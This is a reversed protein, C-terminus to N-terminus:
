AVERHQKRAYGRTMPCLPENRHGLGPVLRPPGLLAPLFLLASALTCALSLALLWGM